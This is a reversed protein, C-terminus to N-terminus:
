FNLVEFSILFYLGAAKWKKSLSELVMQIVETAEFSAQHGMEQYINRQTVASQYLFHYLFPSINGVMNFGAREMFQRSTRTAQLSAAEAINMISDNEQIELPVDQPISKHTYLILIASLYTLLYCKELILAATGTVLQLKRASTSIGHLGRLEHYVSWHVFRETYNYVKRNISNWM